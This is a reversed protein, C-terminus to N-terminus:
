VPLTAPPTAPPMTAARASDDMTGIVARVRILTRDPIGALSDVWPALRNFDKIAGKVESLNGTLLKYITPAKTIVKALWKVVTSAASDANTSSRPASESSVTSSTMAKSSSNPM